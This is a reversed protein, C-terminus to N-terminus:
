SAKRDLGADKLVRPPVGVERFAQYTIGKSQAYPVAVQVFEKELEDLINESGSARLQTELDMREQVLSLRTGADATQLKENLADIREQLQEPTVKRGRRPKHEEIAELYRRVVAGQQRGRALAAKHEKSLGKGSGNKKAQTSTKDQTAAESM